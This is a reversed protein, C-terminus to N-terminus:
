TRDLCEIAAMCCAAVQILEERYNPMDKKLIAQCVEGFEEGIIIAWRDPDHNQVQFKEDQRVRENLIETIIKDRKM